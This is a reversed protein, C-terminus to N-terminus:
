PNVMNKDSTYRHDIHDIRWSNGGVLTLKHPIILKNLLDQLAIQVRNNDNDADKM